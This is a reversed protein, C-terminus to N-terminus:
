GRPYLGRVCLLAVHVFADTRVLAGYLEINEQAIDVYWAFGWKAFQFFVTGTVSAIM